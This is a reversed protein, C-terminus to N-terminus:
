IMKRIRLHTKTIVTFHSPFEEMHDTFVKTIIQIKELNLLGSLRYLIVGPHVMGVRYVLEGFDKDATLLLREERNAFALVESDSIGADTEAIYKVDLGKNRLAEVVPYDVSEDALVRV